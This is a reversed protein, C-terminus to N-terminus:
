KCSQPDGWCLQIGVSSDECMPSLEQFSSDGRNLQWELEEKSLTDRFWTHNPSPCPLMSFPTHPQRRLPALLPLSDQSTDGHYELIITTMSEMSSQM